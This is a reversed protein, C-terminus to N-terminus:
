YNLMHQDLLRIDLIRTTNPECRIELFNALQPKMVFYSWPLCYSHLVSSHRQGQRLLHLFTNYSHPAQATGQLLCHTSISLMAAALHLLSPTLLYLPPGLEPILGKHDQLYPIEKLSWFHGLLPRLNAIILHTFLNRGGTPSSSTEMILPMSSLPSHLSALNWPLHPPFWSSGLLLLPCDDHTHGQPGELSVSPCWIGCCFHDSACIAWESGM